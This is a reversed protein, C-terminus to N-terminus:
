IGKLEELKRKLRMRYKVPMNMYDVGVAHAEVLLYREATKYDHEKWPYPPRSAVENIFSNRSPYTNAFWAGFENPNAHGWQHCQGCGCLANQTLWRVANSNRSKIHVWQTNRDLPRLKVPCNNAQQIECTFDADTKVVIKALEDLWDRFPRKKFKTKRSPKRM